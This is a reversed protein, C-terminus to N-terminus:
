TPAALWSHLKGRRRALAAQLLRLAHVALSAATWVAVAVIGLDPRGIVVSGTLLLLNPNRRATILRFRSDFRQWVHMEIGFCAIFVGEEVRQLVYGAVIVALVLSSRELEAVLLAALETRAPCGEPEARRFEGDPRSPASM